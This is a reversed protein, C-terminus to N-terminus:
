IFNVQKSYRDQKCFVFWPFLPTHGYSRMLEAWKWSTVCAPQNAFWFDRIEDSNNASTEKELKIFTDSYRWWLSATLIERVCRTTLSPTMPKMNSDPRSRYPTQRFTVLTRRLSSLAKQPRTLHACATPACDDVKITTYRNWTSGFHRFRKLPHFGSGYTTLKSPPHFPPVQLVDSSLHLYELLNIQKSARKSFEQNRKCVGFKLESAEVTVM